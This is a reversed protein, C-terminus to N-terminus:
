HMIGVQNDIDVGMSSADEVRNNGVKNGPFKKKHAKSKFRARNPKAKHKPKVPEKPQTPEQYKPLGESQSNLVVGSLYVMMSFDASALTPDRSGKTAVMKDVDLMMLATGFHTTYEWLMNLFLMILMKEM